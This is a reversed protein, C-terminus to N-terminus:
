ERKKEITIAGLDPKKGFVTPSVYVDYPIDKNLEIELWMLISRSIDLKISKGQNFFMYRECIVEKSWGETSCIYSNGQTDLKIFKDPVIQKFKNFINVKTEKELFQQEGYPPMKRKNGTM